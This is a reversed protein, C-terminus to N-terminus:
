AGTTARSAPRYFLRNISPQSSIVFCHRVVADLRRGEAAASVSREAPVSLRSGMSAVHCRNFEHNRLTGARFLRPPAVPPSVPSIGDRIVSATGDPGSMLWERVRDGEPQEVQVILDHEIHIVDEFRYVVRQDADEELIVGGHGVHLDPAAP